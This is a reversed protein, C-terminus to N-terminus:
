FAYGCRRLKSIAERYKWTVTGMPIKLVEAIEAFTMDLAFKMHIIQPEPPKLKSLAEEMAVKGVAENATVDASDSVSDKTTHEGGSLGAVTGYATRNVGTTIMDETNYVSSDEAKQPFIDEILSERGRVRLFDIAMNRAIVTIYTKYGNGPKYKDANRWLRIFFESTVDEADEKNKLIGLIFHYIYPGLATYIDHLAEKDGERLRSMCLDFDKEEM